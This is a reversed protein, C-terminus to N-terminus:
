MVLRWAAVYYQLGIVDIDPYRSSQIDISRSYRRLERVARM